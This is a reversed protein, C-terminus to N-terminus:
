INERSPLKVTAEGEEYIDGDLTELWWIVDVMYAGNHIYKRKVYGNAICMDRVLGHSVVQKGALFPVGQIYNPEDPHPPLKDGYGPFIPMIDWAIKYLWGTDGMWNWLMSIAFHPMQSNEFVPRDIFSFGPMGMGNFENAPHTYLGTEPDMVADKKLKPDMLIERITYYPKGPMGTYRSGLEEATIPGAVKKPIATGVEVDEWYLPDEGRRTEEVWWGTIKEWDEATYRHAPRAWWDACDWPHDFGDRTYGEPREIYRKLNEKVYGTSEGVCVGNQNYVKGHGWMRFSRYESGGPPTIDELDQQDEVAYLTDGPYVPQYFYHIRNLGNVALTDCLPDKPMANGWQGALTYNLPYVLKDKYGLKKAYEADFYLRNDPDYNRAIISSDEATHGYGKVPEPEPPPGEPPGDKGGDDSPPPGHRRPKEIGPLNQDDLDGRILAQIDVPGRQNIALREKMAEDIAAKDKPSYVGPYFIEYNGPMDLKAAKPQYM